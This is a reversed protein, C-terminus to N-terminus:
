RTTGMAWLERIAALLPCGEDHEEFWRLYRGGWVPRIQTVYCGDYVCSRSDGGWATDHYTGESSVVETLKPDM